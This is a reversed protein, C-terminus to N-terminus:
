FNKDTIFGFLMQEEITMARQLYDLVKNHKNLEFSFGGVEYFTKACSKGITLYFSAQEQSKM